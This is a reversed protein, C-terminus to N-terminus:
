QLATVFMGLKDLADGESNDEQLLKLYADWKDGVVQGVDIRGYFISTTHYRAM